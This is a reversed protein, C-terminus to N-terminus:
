IRSLSTSGATAVALPIDCDAIERIQRATPRLGCRALGPPQRTLGLEDVLNPRKGPRGPRRNTVPWTMLTLPALLMPQAPVPVRRSRYGPGNPSTGSSLEAM